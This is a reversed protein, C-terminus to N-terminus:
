HAFPVRLSMRVRELVVSSSEWSAVACVGLCKTGVNSPPSTSKGGEPSIQAESSISSHRAQQKGAHVPPVSVAAGLYAKSFRRRRRRTTEQRGLNIVMLQNVNQGEKERCWRLGGSGRPSGHATPLKHMDRTHVRTHQTHTRCRYFFGFPTPTKSSNTWQELAENSQWTCVCM